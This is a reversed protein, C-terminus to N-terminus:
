SIQDNFIGTLSVTYQPTYGFNSSAHGQGFPIEYVDGANWNALITKSIQFVHGDEWPLVPFWLRKIEGLECTKDQRNISLKDGFKKCYNAIDDIHWAVGHGPLKILLRALLFESRLRMKKINSEGILDLLLRNTEGHLGYNLEFSNYRNRGLLNNTSAYLSAKESYHSKPEEWNQDALEFNDTSFTLWDSPKIDINCIKEVSVPSLSDFDEKMKLWPKSNILNVFDEKLL